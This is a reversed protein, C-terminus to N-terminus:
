QNNIVGLLSDWLIEFMQRYGNALSPDIIVYLVIDEEREGVTISVVHNGFVTICSNELRGAPLFKYELTKLDLQNGLHESASPFIYKKKIELSKIEVLFSATYNKIKESFLFGTDGISYLDAGTKLIDRLYNKIGEVGRYISIEQQRPKQNYQEELAPLIASLKDEKVRVIELLKSPSAAKYTNEGKSLVPFILGKEALRDIADYASRRHIGSNLSISSVGLEGDNLLTEYIKAENPTLGIEQLIQAYM